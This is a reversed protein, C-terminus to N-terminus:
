REEISRCHEVALRAPGDEARNQEEAGAGTAEGAHSGGESDSAASQANGGAGTYSKASETEDVM